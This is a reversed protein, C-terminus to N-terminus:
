MRRAAAGASRLAERAAELENTHQLFGHTVGPVIEMDDARGLDKLRAHLTVTDSFLPDVGAAILYLPPLRLLAEDSAALPCALPDASIARGGAYWDWYRQMRSTTLGPGNAFRAYSNGTLDAAYNGYFLLGGDPLARGTTQEHLMAALALNAGSSDGSVFFPRAVPGDVLGDLLARLCAVVDLLGAPFPNEPALRYDPMAVPMRTENALVRACREHTEPSCFAFGGGHVFFVIGSGANDPTLIRIRCRESGLTPDAPIWVETEAAMEPLNVNWRRNNRASVARGEAAPLLTPDPQPGTEAAVKQLLAQMQPSIIGPDPQPANM